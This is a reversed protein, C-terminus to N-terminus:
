ISLLSNNEIKLVKFKLYFVLFFLLASFVFWSGIMHGSKLSIVFNYVFLLSFLDFFDRNKIYFVFGLFALIFFLLFIILGYSIVFEILFNHPYLSQSYNYYEQFFGPGCGFFLCSPNEKLLYLGNLILEDRSSFDGSFLIKMRQFIVISELAETNNYFYIFGFALFLSFLTSVFLFRFKNFNLFLITIIFFMSTVLFEGRAGGLLCFFLAFFSLFLYIFKKNYERIFAYVFVLAMMGFFNTLGLSYTEERGILFSGYSFNFRPPIDFVFGKTLVTLSLVFFLYFIFSKIIKKEIEISYSNLFISFVYFGIGIILFDIIERFGAGRFLYFIICSLINSFLVM